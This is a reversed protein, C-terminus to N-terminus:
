TRVMFLMLVTAIVVFIMLPGNAISQDRLTTVVMAGVQVASSGLHALDSSPTDDVLSAFARRVRVDILALSVVVVALAAGSILTHNVARGM